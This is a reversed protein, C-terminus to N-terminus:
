KFYYENLEKPTISLDRKFKYNLLLALDPNFLSFMKMVRM